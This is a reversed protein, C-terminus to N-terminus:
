KALSSLEPLDTREESLRAWQERAEQAAGMEQLYLAFLLRDSFEAKDAPRRKEIARIADASLTRFQGMGVEAGNMSVTWAYQTDPKLKTIMRYTLGTVKAQHVPKEQGPALVTLTAPANVDAASWRFQPQLTGVSGETPYVLKPSTDVKAKAISRMRVSASSTQSVQALVKNSARWETTRSALLAGSPTAIETERVEYEGPKLVFEKGSATYMVQLQADRGVTIRQGKSLESLVLPRQNGEIAVDGKLNTIFAVTQAFAPAAVALAVALLTRLSKNM